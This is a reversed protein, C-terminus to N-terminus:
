WNMTDLSTKEQSTKDKISKVQLKSMAFYAIILWPSFDICCTFSIVQLSYYANKWFTLQTCSCIFFNSWSLIEGIFHLEVNPWFIDYPLKGLLNNTIFTARHSPTEKYESQYPSILAFVTLRIIIESKVASTQILM